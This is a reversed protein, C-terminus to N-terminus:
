PNQELWKRFGGLEAVAFDQQTTYWEERSSDDLTKLYEAMKADFWELYNM